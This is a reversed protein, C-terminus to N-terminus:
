EISMKFLGARGGLQHGAQNHEVEYLLEKNSISVYSVYMSGSEAM